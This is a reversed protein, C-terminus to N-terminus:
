YENGFKEKLMTEESIIRRIFASPLIVAAAFLSYWAHFFVITSMYMIFAGLYSPHKCFRYPGSTVLSHDKQISIHMTFRKGLSYVAWTRLLLGFIMGTIGAISILDWKVSEPYRLYSSELITLFQTIYVSWIIQAGTGRDKSSLIITFPNYDPQLMSASIGFIVLIIVHWTMLISLNGLAPAIIVLAIIVLGRITKSIINKIKM